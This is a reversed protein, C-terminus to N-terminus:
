SLAPIQLILGAIRDISASGDGGELMKEIQKREAASLLEGSNDSLKQQTATLPLPNEPEGLAYEVKAAFSRGDKLVVEVKSGRKGPYLRDMEPDVALSVKEMVNVLAPNTFHREDFADYDSRGLVARAAIAYPINFYADGRKRLDHIETEIAIKYTGANIKKIQETAIGHQQTAKIFADLTAHMHRCGPYAKLYCGEIAYKFQLPCRVTASADSGLYAPFFGDEFVKAYGLNGEGALLAAAVGSRTGWAVQLPQTSGQKFSSMLGSSGMAALCLAQQTTALDYGQLQSFTAAAGFPATISTPHFGKRTFQPNGCRALRIMVDYGAVIAKDITEWSKNKAFALVIPIVAAAPHCAGERSGDEYVSSNIAFAWLMCLDQASLGGSGAALRSLDRFVKGRAGVFASAVGDLLHQRVRLRVPDRLQDQRITLVLEALYASLADEGALM